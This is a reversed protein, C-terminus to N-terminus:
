DNNCQYADALRWRLMRLYSPDENLMQNVRLAEKVREVKGEPNFAIGSWDGAIAYRDLFPRRDRAPVLAALDKFTLNQAELLKLTTRADKVPKRGLPLLWLRCAALKQWVSMAAGPSASVPRVLADLLAAADDARRSFEAFSGRGGSKGQEILCIAQKFR